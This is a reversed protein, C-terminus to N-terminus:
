FSISLGAELANYSFDEGNEETPVVDEGNLRSFSGYEYSINFMEAYDFGTRLKYFLGDTYGRDDTTAGWRFTPNVQRYDYLGSVSWVLNDTINRDVTLDLAYNYKGATEVDFRGYSWYDETIFYTGSVSPTVNFGALSLEPAFKANVSAALQDEELAMDYYVDAGFTLWEMPTVELAASMDVPMEDETGLYYNAGLDISLMDIPTLSLDAFLKNSSPQWWSRTLRSFAWGRGPGQLYDYGAAFSYFDNGLSGEVFRKDLYPDDVDPDLNFEYAADVDFALPGLELPDVFALSGGAVNRESKDGASWTYTDEYRAGIELFAIPITLHANYGGRPTSGRLPTFTFVGAEADETVLTYDGGIRVMGLDVEADAKVFYEMEMFDSFATEVGLDLIGLDLKNAMAVLYQDDLLDVADEFGLYLTHEAADILSFTYSGAFWHPGSDADSAREQLLAFMGADFDVVAGQGMRDGPTARDGRFPRNFLYSTLNLAYSDTLTVDFDPTSVTGTLFNTVAAGDALWHADLADKDVTLTLDMDVLDTRGHINLGLEYDLYAGDSAWLNPFTNPFWYLGSTRHQFPDIYPTGPGKTDILTYDVDTDVSFSLTPEKELEAWIEDIEDRFERTLARIMIMVEEAQQDTLGQRQLESRLARVTRDVYTRLEDESADIKAAVEAIKADLADVDDQMQLVMFELDFHEGMLTMLDSRLNRIDLKLDEDDFDVDAVAAEITEDVWDMLRATITAAQYRTLNEAGRFTGDPFGIIIGVDAIKALYEEAWHGEPVDVFAFAPTALSLMLAVALIVSLKKM